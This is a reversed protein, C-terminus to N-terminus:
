TAKLESYAKLIEDVESVEALTKELGKAGIM